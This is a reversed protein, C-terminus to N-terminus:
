IRMDIEGSRVASMWEPLYLLAQGGLVDFDLKSQPWLRRPLRYDQV